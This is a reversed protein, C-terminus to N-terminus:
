HGCHVTASKIDFVELLGHQADGRLYGFGLM